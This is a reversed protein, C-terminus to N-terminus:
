NSQISGFDSVSEICGKWKLTGQKVSDPRSSLQTLIDIIWHEVDAQQDWVVNNRYMEELFAIADQRTRTDWDLSAALKGLHHCVGFKFFPDKRCPSEHVFNKFKAFQGSCLLIDVMRLAPYWIQKCDFSRGDKLSNLLTQTNRISSHIERATASSTSRTSM